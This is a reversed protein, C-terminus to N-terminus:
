LFPTLTPVVVNVIHAHIVGLTRRVPEGAYFTEEGLVVDIVPSIKVHMEANPDVPHIGYIRSIPTETEVTGGHSQILGPGICRVNRFGDTHWMTGDFGGAGTHLLRHKGIRDLEQLAWLPDERFDNGRKYPQLGEVVAKAAPDWGQIKALSSQFLTVGKGLRGKRDEDGFIPFESRSGIEDTLSPTYANTLAYALHDLASRMNHLADGILVSIVERPPQEDVSAYATVVGQGFEAGEPGLKPGDNEFLYVAGGLYYVSSTEPVGHTGPPIPGSWRADLDIECRVSYHDGELWGAIEHNLDELHKAARQLKLEYDLL